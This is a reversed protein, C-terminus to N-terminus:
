LSGALSRRELEAELAKKLRFLADTPGRYLHLSISIQRGAMLVEVCEIPMPTGDMFLQPMHTVSNTENAM